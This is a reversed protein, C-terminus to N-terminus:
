TAHETAASVVSIVNDDSGGFVRLAFGRPLSTPGPRNKREKYSEYQRGEKKCIVGNDSAGIVRLAFRSAFEHAM